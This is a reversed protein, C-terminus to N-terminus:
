KQRMRDNGFATPHEMRRVTSAAAAAATPVNQSGATAAVDAFGDLMWSGTGEYECDHPTAFGSALTEIREWDPVATPPVQRRVGLSVHTFLSSPRDIAAVSVRFLWTM